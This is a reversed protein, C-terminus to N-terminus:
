CVAAERGIEVEVLDERRQVFTSLIEVEQRNEVGRQAVEVLHRIAM